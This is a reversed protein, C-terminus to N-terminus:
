KDMEKLNKIRSLRQANFLVILSSIVMAFAAFLPTLLGAVALGIGACNYFFAWFLNQNVIKRGKAAALRLLTLAHFSKTTMLLDSVQISIDSASVVAIGIHAATLAPADNMGDGLMAVIEGKKRLGDILDRKQLPLYAAHWEDFRCAKAVQAVPAQGDGSVLLSKVPAILSIFELVGPRIRDGLVLPALCKGEKAFYVTTLIAEKGKEDTEPISIKKQLFYAASGLCYNISQLKGQIGKGLVEEVQEFPPSPCLLNQNLAASIPHLSQSVLGKLAKQDDFSLRDLGSCLTFRGETM